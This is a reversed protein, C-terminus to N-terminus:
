AAAAARRAVLCTQARLRFLAQSQLLRQVSSVCLLVWHCLCSSSPAELPMWEVNCVQPRDCLQVPACVGRPPPSFSCSSNKCVLSCRRQLALL